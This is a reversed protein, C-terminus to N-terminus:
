SEGFKMAIWNVQILGGLNNAGLNIDFSGAAQNQVFPNHANSTSNVTTLVVAYDADGFATSFTVTATQPSGSFSAATVKGAKEELGPTASALEQDIGYLHATLDVSDVESPTTAPTYNTPNWDIDLKDGDIEDTQGTIHDSAHLGGGLLAADIGALHATLQDTADVESPSTTPTYNAHGTWTVELKDGDVVDAGGDIHRAAHASVDVGDVTGVNTINNTGMDLAGTMARTGTILLYHTHDDDGLGVLNGHDIAAGMPGWTTGDYIVLINEDEVRTCFGEDPPSFVWATGDWETIQDDKGSWAGSGGSAILYRDGASPSGPPATLDRDLVSEQWDWGRLKSEIEDYVYLKTALDGDATPAASNTIKNGGLNIDGSLTSGATRAQELTTSHPNSTSTSHTTFEDLDLLDETSGNRRVRFRNLTSNYWIEGDVPSGPDSSLSDLIIGNIHLAM